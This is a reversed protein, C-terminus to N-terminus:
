EKWLWRHNCCDHGQMLTKTRVLRLKTSYGEASAFDPHCIVAYGIDVGGAERFTKAWLCETVNIEFASPTDEVTTFTLAHQWFRSPKRAWDTFSSFDPRTAEEATKRGSQRSQKEAASQLIKILRKRGIEDGVAKLHPLLTWAYAFIFRDEYSSQSDENFKHVAPDAPAALVSKAVLQPAAFCSLCGFPVARGLFQRRDFQCSTKMTPM